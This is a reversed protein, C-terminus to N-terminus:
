KNDAVQYNVKVRYGRIREVKEDSQVFSDLFETMQELSYFRINDQDKIESGALEKIKRLHVESKSVVCIFSYGADLCKKINKVEYDVSNSVAIECAIKISDRVLSIDVRGNEVVEEISAKFGRQEAIKKLFTQLYRHERVEEKETFTELYEKGKEEIDSREEPVEPVRVEEKSVSGKEKKVERQEIYTPLSNNLEEEIESIRRSYRERTNQIILNQNENEPIRSIPFTKLSFDDTNKGVRGIAQGINLNQLDNSDFGSFGSELKKADFDGLRFCIRINCNSLVSNGIETDKIQNLEQHALVLGIGYKRAGSLISNISPSLFNYFEDIHIYFPHRDGISMIQRAQGVQYLKSLILTGLLYSNEEGILGQSLKVLLIKRGNVVDNFDLGEEEKQALINRIIRPRLFTDLRTLLPSINVKKLLVYENNWYYHISKDNVTKLFEKRYLSELLFRKLEILTGGQSSNLFTNIANSLVSTMQDGWSTSHRKFADVLDSSLVIKEVETKVSLLNFGFAFENDSPDILIVDELRNEPIHPILEDITDGHPDFIACGNGRKVDELFLNSILTSKGTGTAGIIHTHRLRQEDNLSVKKEVGLYRNVGIVYDNGVLTDPIMKTKSDYSILKSSDPFHVFSFLEKTNMIMGFRNTGRNRLNGLHDKYQYGENSLPILSNFEGRSVLEINTILEMALNEADKPNASAVALRFVVAFLPSSVKEKVCSVMEPSDPFFSDKGIMVSNLISGAWPNKVGKFIIQIMVVEDTLLNDLVALIGTLSNIATNIPRMFEENYGFDVILVKNDEDFPLQKLGTSTIIASPFYTKLLHLIRRYDDINCVILIEILNYRGIIEFSIQGDSDSLMNLFEIFLSDKFDPRESFQIKIQKLFVSYEFFKPPWEEFEEKLAHKPKPFLWSFLGPSKGDDVYEENSRFSHFFERFTPELEIPYSFLQYGRGKQEWNYFNDVLDSSNM